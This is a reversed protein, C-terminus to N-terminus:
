TNNQQHHQRQHDSANLLELNERQNDLRNGNKHHVIEYPFPKLKRGIHQEMIYRHEFMRRGNIQIWKYGYKTIHGDGNPATKVIDPSGYRYFRIWHKSCYGRGYHKRKCEKIKCIRM